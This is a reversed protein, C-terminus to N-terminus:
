HITLQQASDCCNALQADWCCNAAQQMSSHLNPLVPLVGCCVDRTAVTATATAAAVASSHTAM